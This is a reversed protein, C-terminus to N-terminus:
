RAGGEAGKVLVTPVDLSFSIPRVEERHFHRDSFEAANAPLDIQTRGASDDFIDVDNMGVYIDGKVYRSLAEHIPCEDCERGPAEDIDKQTVNVQITETEM